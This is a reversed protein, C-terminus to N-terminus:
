STGRVNARIDDDFGDNEEGVARLRPPRYYSNYTSENPGRNVVVGVVNAEIRGLENFMRSVDDRRSQGRSIVVLVQGVAGALIAADSLSLFPPSDIIVADFTAELEALVTGM